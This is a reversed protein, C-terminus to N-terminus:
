KETPPSDAVFERFMDVMRDIMKLAREREEADKETVAALESAERQRLEEYSTGPTQAAETSTACVMADRELTCVSIEGTMRNLRWVRDDTAKMFEYVPEITTTQAFASSTSLTTGALALALTVFIAFIRNTMNLGKKM